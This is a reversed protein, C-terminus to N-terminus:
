RREAAIKVVVGTEKDRVLKVKDDNKLAGFEASVGNLTVEANPSVRFISLKDEHGSLTLQANGDLTSVIKGAARTADEAAHEGAHKAAEPESAAWLKGFTVGLLALVVLCAGARRFPGAPKSSSLYNPVRFRM